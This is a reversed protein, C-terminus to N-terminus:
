TRILGELRSDHTKVLHELDKLRAELKCIVQSKIECESTLAEVERMLRAITKDKDRIEQDLRNAWRGRRDFEERLDSEAQKLEWYRRSYPDVVVSQITSVISRPIPKLGCIAFFYDPRCDSNVQAGYREPLLSAVLKDNELDKIPELIIAEAWRQGLVVIEPFFSKLLNCFESLDYERHHFPNRGGEGGAQYTEKNPTSVLFLGDKELITRASELLKDPADIHEILEFCTILDFSSDLKLDRADMVEFWLVPHNYNRRAFDIAEPDKDIGIVRVAGQLALFHSGYGCGCGLDLIRAGYGVASAYVYRSMHEVYIRGLGVVGPVYREGTFEM